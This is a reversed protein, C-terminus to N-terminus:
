SGRALYSCSQQGRACSPAMGKIKRPFRNSEKAIYTKPFQISRLPWNAAKEKEARAPSLLRPLLHRCSVAQERLSCISLLYTDQKRIKAFGRFDRNGILNEPILLKRAKHL